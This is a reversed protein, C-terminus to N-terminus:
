TMDAKLDAAARLAIAVLIPALHVMSELDGTDWGGFQHLKMFADPKEEGGLYKLYDDDYEAYVLYIEHRDQCVHIRRGKKNLYGGIDPHNTIWAVMQAAEQMAIDKEQKDRLVAKVEVLARIRKGERKDETAVLYGDTRATYSATAFDALLPVRHLTWEFPLNFHMILACLLDLLAANVIQEDITAPYIIKRVEPDGPSKLSSPTDVFQRRHAKAKGFLPSEDETEEDDPRATGMQRTPTTFPDNDLSLRGTQKVVEAYSINPNRQRLNYNPPTATVSTSMVDTKVRAAQRQHLHVLAFSSEPVKNFHLHECYRHWSRYGALLEKAEDKWEALGAHEWDFKHIKKVSRIVQFRLYQEEDVNSGSHLKKAAHLSTSKFGAEQVLTRWESISSPLVSKPNSSDAM